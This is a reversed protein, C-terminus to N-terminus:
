LYSSEEKMTFYDIKSEVLRMTNTTKHADEVLSILAHTTFFLQYLVCKNVNM